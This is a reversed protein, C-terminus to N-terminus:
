VTTGSVGSPHMRRRKRRLTRIQGSFRAELPGALAFDRVRLSGIQLGGSRLGRLGQRKPWGFGSAGRALM